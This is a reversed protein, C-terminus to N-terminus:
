LKLNRAQFGFKTTKNEAFEINWNWAACFTPFQLANGRVGGIKDESVAPRFIKVLAFRKEIRQYDEACWCIAFLYTM